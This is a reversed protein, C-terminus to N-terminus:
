KIEYQLKEIIRKFDRKIDNLESYWVAGFIMEVNEYNSTSCIVVPIEYQMTKLYEILKFGAEDDTDEGRYLPYCMDTIILDFTADEELKELADEFFGVHTINMTGCAGLARKIDVAKYINDEVLLIKYEMQGREFDYIQM